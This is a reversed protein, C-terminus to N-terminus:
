RAQVPGASEAAQDPATRRGRDTPRGPGTRGDMGNAGAPRPAPAALGAALVGILAPLAAAASFCLMTLGSDNVAVEVVALVTLARGLPGLWQPLAGPVTLWTYPGEGRRAERVARVAWWASLAAIGSGVALAAVALPSSRFPAVLATAKRAITTGATGDLVQRVFGGMHTGSGGFLFDAAGFAGVVGVAAVAIVVWWTWRPRAGALGTALVALALVLTLAGGVDAGLAPAGDVVLALVGPVGVGFGVLVRRERFGRRAASPGVWAAIAVLLAAAALAFATNSVGYFRGAVVANMGLAGNFGLRAGTAGDVLIVAATVAPAMLSLLMRPTRTPSSSSSSVAPATVDMPAAPADPGALPRRSARRRRMLREAGAAAARGARLLAALGAPIVLAWGLALGIVAIPASDGARWWPLMNALWMGAPLATVPLAARAIVLPRGRSSISSVPPAGDAEDTETAPGTAARRDHLARGTGVLLTLFAGILVLATPIVTRESARAHRANDALTRARAVGEALVDAGAGDAGETAERAGTDAVDPMILPTGFAGAETGTLARFLTPALDTSQILGPQHTSAGIIFGNDAGAPSTTEAPLVAMQPGPDTADAVSAIVVRTGAPASALTEELAAALLLIRDGDSGGPPSDAATTTGATDSAGDAADATDVLILDAPDAATLLESLAGEAPPGGENTLALIGGRGVAAMTTNTRNLVGALAGGATAGEAASTVTGTRDAPWACAGDPHEAARMRSGAGLTLWGDAPCTRDGITRTVLNVPEAGGAYALLAEAAGATASDDVEAAGGAGDTRDADDPAGSGAAALVDAWTLDTTGLVVLPAREGREAATPGAVSAAASTSAADPGAGADRTGAAHAAVALATGVMTAVLGIVLALVLIYVVTRM